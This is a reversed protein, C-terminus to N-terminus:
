PSVAHEHATVPNHCAVWTDGDRQVPPAARACIDSAVTCKGRFACGHRWGTIPAAETVGQIRKPTGARLDLVTNLLARTYPHRPAQLVDRATGCEVLRGLYMVGVRHSVFGIVPMNHSIFLYTLGLERQLDVLINLIQAQISVDLASTPEDCVLFEAESALARAISLRQRQGGSFEHPHRDGDRSSLGVLTLVEDVRRRIATTDARLGHTRIPEAIIDRVKWRPDLSSGPDQFVMQVRRRVPLQERRLRLNALNIGDFWVAGESPAMLGTALKALTSKGSGSEGVLGFTEGRAIDFSVDDVAKTPPSVWSPFLAALPNSAGAFHKSVADIRLLPREPPM